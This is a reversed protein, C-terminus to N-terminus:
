ISCVVREWRRCSPFSSVVISVSLGGKSTEEEGAKPVGRWGIGGVWGARAGGGGANLGEMGVMRGIRRGGGVNRGKAKRVNVFFCLRM